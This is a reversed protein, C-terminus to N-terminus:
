GQIPNNVAEAKLEEYFKVHAMTIWPGVWLMGIGLTIIGLLIWGIYSLDLLFLDMKHGDMMVKSRKICENPDLEPNDEAIFTTMSYAYAKILGPIILLIMWLIIYLATLLMIGLVRAYDEKFGASFMEKITEERGRNFRLLAVNMGYSLNCTILLSALCSIVILFISSSRGCGQIAGSILLTILTALVPQKWKGQLTAYAQSRFEPRTSM